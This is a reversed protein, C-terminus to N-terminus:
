TEDPKDDKDDKPVEHYLAYMFFATIVITDFHEIGYGILAYQLSMAILLYKGYYLAKLIKPRTEYNKEKIIEFLIVFSALAAFIIMSLLIVVWWTYNTYIKNSSIIGASIMLLVGRLESKNSM